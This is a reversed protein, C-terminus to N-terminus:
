WKIQLPTNVPMKESRLQIKWITDALFNILEPIVKKETGVKGIIIGKEGILGWFPNLDTMSKYSTSLIKDIKRIIRFKYDEDLLSNKEVENRLAILQKKLIIVENDDATYVNESKLKSAFKKKIDDLNAQQYKREYTRCTEMFFKEIKVINQERKEDIKPFSMELNNAEAYVEIFGLAEIYSKYHSFANKNAAHFALFEKCIVIVAPTPDEPLRNIFQDEFM